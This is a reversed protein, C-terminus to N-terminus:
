VDRCQALLACSSPRLLAFPHPLWSIVPHCVQLAEVEAQPTMPAEPQLAFVAQVLAAIRYMAHQLVNRGTAVLASARCMGPLQEHLTPHLQVPASSKAYPQQKLRRSGGVLKLLTLRNSLLWIWMAFAKGLASHSLAYKSAYM